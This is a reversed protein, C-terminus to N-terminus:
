NNLLRRAGKYNERYYEQNLSSYKVGGHSSAHIFSDEGTYIGVHDIGPSGYYSFFVLDGPQLSSRDVPTGYAAQEEADHPLNFGAAQFVYRVFGSCDFGSPGSGGYVYRTGLFSSALSLIKKVTQGAAGRSPTPLDPRSTGDNAPSPLALTQGPYIVTSTLGNKQMLAEVTTGHSLAISYLCEGEKVVHVAPAQGTSGGGQAGDGPEKAGNQEPITLQQGPHILDGTIGNARQIEQASVGYRLGIGYLTDGPVVTYVAAKAAAPLSFFLFLAGTLFIGPKIKRFVPMFKLPAM